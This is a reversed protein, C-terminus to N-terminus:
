KTSLEHLLERKIFRLHSHIRLNRKLSLISNRDRTAMTVMVYGDYRKKNGKVTNLIVFSGLVCMVLTVTEM